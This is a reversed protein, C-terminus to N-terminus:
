QTWRPATPIRGQGLKSVQGRKASRLEARRPYMGAEIAERAVAPDLRKLERPDWGRREFAQYIGACLDPVEDAPVPERDQILRVAIDVLDSLTM